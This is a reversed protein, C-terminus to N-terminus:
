KIEEFENINLGVFKVNDIISNYHHHFHSYYWTKLNNGNNILDNYIKTLTSREKFIDFNLQVDNDLWYKLNSKTLPECFDPASHTIIIDIDKLNKTIEPKYIINEDKWYNNGHNLVYGSRKTRDISIAGGICLINYNNLKLISYDAVLKVKETDYNEKDNFYSPDDHNGRVAFVTSNSVKLRDNLYKLRRIEKIDTEFGIGFDGAVIVAINNLQLTKIFDPIVDYDGHIDGCVLIQEYM